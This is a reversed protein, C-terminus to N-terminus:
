NCYIYIYYIIITTLNDNRNAEYELVYMLCYKYISTSTHMFLISSKLLVLLYVNQVYIYCGCVHLFNFPIVLCVFPM